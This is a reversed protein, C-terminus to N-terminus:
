SADAPERKVHKLKAASHIAKRIRQYTGCRCIIGSMADNIDSDTPDPNDALLAVAAMIQGSQCYGCQPVQENIWAQQVPHLVDGAIQTIGEITTIQKESADKASIACSRVPKGDLLVTCAGCMAIGCGFKTGNLSLFDRLVWLLPMDPDVDLEHQTNNITFKIM